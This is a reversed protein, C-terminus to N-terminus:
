ARRLFVELGPSGTEESMELLIKANFGLKGREALVALLSAMVISHQVKNDAAGRGYYREGERKLIWPDLGDRWQEPIGRVVDGHGYTLLTPRAPDEKRSAVLFPGGNPLANDFIECAFGHRALYPKINDRLYRHLDPLRGPEQSETPVAIREALMAIFGGDDFEAEIREIAGDRTGHM